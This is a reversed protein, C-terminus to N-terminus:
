REGEDPADTLFLAEAGKAAYRRPDLARLNRLACALAAEVSSGSGLREDDAEPNRPIFWVIAYPARIGADPNDTTYIELEARGPPLKTKLYSRIETGIPNDVYM